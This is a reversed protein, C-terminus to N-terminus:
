IGGENVTTGSNEGADSVSLMMCSGHGYMAGFEMRRACNGMGIACVKLQDRAVHRKVLQAEGKM